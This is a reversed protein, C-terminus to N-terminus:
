FEWHMYLTCHLERFVIPTTYRCTHWAIVPLMPSIIIGLTYDYYYDTNTYYELEQAM